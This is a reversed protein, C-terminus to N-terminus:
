LFDVGFFPMGDAHKSAYKKLAKAINSFKDGPYSAPVILVGFHPRNENFFLVSLKIFDNRNKTVMCRKHSSAYTLQAFDSEQLMSIEHASLADVGDKRLIVAIKPSLDEDLYYKV